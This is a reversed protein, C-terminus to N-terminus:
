PREGEKVSPPTAGFACVRGDGTTIVIRDDAVAPSAYLEAGMDYSWLEKGDDLALVYLRGDGSGFVVREGCVIPSSDLKRKTPFTWLRTGDSRRVCHLNKDRGGFVVRDATLAPSSFFAHTPDDYHWVTEHSVLDVCVFANGYHGFYARGEDVAVSGAVHAEEGLPVQAIPEGSAAAVVHLVADCGGVIVHEGDVAPTGNVYNATAYSWAVEGSKADFCYLKGDYSGVVVRPPRGDAGPLANAGGLIKDETAFKWALVGNQAELAYFSADSSGVYVRGQFCLPPAEIVDQTEFSWQETGDALGLCHLKQDDAGFYVRGACVVPSSTIAKGCRYTWLLAPEDPLTARAVGRLAPDGRFIPWDAGGAAPGSVASTSLALLASLPPLSELFRMADRM